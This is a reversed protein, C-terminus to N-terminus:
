LLKFATAVTLLVPIALNAYCLATSFKLKSCGQSPVPSPTCLCDGQSCDCGKGGVGCGGGGGVCGGSGSSGSSGSSSDNSRRETDKGKTPSRGAPKKGGGVADEIDRTAGGGASGPNVLALQGCAGAIDQGKEQRVRTNISYPESMCIAHFQRCVRM